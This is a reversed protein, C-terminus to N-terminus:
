WGFKLLEQEASTTTTNVFSTIEAEKISKALSKAVSDLSFKGSLNLDFLDETTLNGKSSPFRYNNLLATKYM